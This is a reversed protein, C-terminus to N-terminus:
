LREEGAFGIERTSIIQDGFCERATASKKPVDTILVRIQAALHQILPRCALELSETTTVGYRVLILILDSHKALLLTNSTFNLPPTNLIIIEYQERWCAVLSTMARLDFLENSSVLKPGTPIYMLNPVASVPIAWSAPLQGSLMLSFGKQTDDIALSSALGPTRVGADVFLVKAGALAYVAALNFPTAEKSDKLACSTVLMVRPSICNSSLVLAARLLRIGRSYASRPDTLVDFSWRTVSSGSRVPSTPDGYEDRLLVSVPFGSELELRRPSTITRDLLDVLTAMPIGFGLGVSFAAFLSLLVRPSSSKAAVHGPSFLSTDVAQIGNTVGVQDLKRVLDAYLQRADQAEQQVIQYRLYKDNLVQAKELLKDHEEQTRKAQERAIEYDNRARASLRDVEAQLSSKLAQLTAKEQGLRPFADGLVVRDHDVIAQQSAIQGELTNILELSNLAQPDGSGLMGSGALGSILEPSQSHVIQDVAARLIRNSEAQNLASTAQQLQDLVPNYQTEQGAANSGTNYSRTERRLQIEQEQMRNMNDRVKGLQDDLVKSLKETSRFRLGFTYQALVEALENVVRAAMEPDPNSFKISILRTGPVVNVQLRKQFRTMARFRRTPSNRLTTGPAEPKLQDSALSLMGGSSDGNSRFDPTNELNLREIVQLDLAESTLEAVKTELDVNEELPNTAEIVRAGNQGIGSLDGDNSAAHVELLAESQYRRQAFSCYLIAVLLTAGVSTGIIAKRRRLFDVVEKVTLLKDGQCNPQESLYTSDM